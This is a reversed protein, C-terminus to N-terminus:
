WCGPGRAGPSRPGPGRTGPRGSAPGAGGGGEGRAPGCAGFRGAVDDTPRPRSPALTAPAFFRRPWIAAELWGVLLGARFATAGRVARNGCWPLRLALAALGLLRKGIRVVSRGTGFRHDLAVGGRGYRRAQGFIARATPRYRYRLVAEPVLVLGVGTLALRLCLDTDQAYPMSEDFGGVAELAERRVALTGGGAVPWVTQPERPLTVEQQPVRSAQLWPPNLSEHDLRAAVFPHEVLAAQLAALYGPAVEDDGDVFVVADGTSAAAGANLAASRNRPPTRVVGFGPLGHGHAEAVRHTGDTSGDDVVITDVWGPVDQARLAALQRPLLEAENRCAIVVSLSPAPLRM